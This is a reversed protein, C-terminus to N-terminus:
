DFIFHFVEDFEPQITTSHIGSDHFFNKIKEAASLYDNLNRFRIHATAIIKLGALRWVHFEHVALVGEVQIICYNITQM